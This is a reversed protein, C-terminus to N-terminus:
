TSFHKGFLENLKETEYWAAVTGMLWMLGYDIAALFFFKDWTMECNNNANM